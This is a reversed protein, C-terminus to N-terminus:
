QTLRDRYEDGIIGVNVWTDPAGGLADAAAFLSEPDAYRGTESVEDVDDSVLASLDYFGEPVPVDLEYLQLSFSGGSEWASLWRVAGDPTSPLLNEIPAGRRLAVEAFAPALHRM